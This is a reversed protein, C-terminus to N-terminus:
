AALRARHRSAGDGHGNGFTGAHGAVLLGGSLHGVADCVYQYDKMALITDSPLFQFLSEREESTSLEPVIDVRGQRDRSLQNEVEFTRISDIEDGFFDIRFPYECSYSFVDLISGRLAFQGPEYVYDVERFGFNRLTDLTDDVNVTQGQDLTLTREDLSKRTVVMESVAEPYSVVYLCDQASGEQAKLRALM